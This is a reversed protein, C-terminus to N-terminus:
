DPKFALYAPLAFAAAKARKIKTIPINVIYPNEM